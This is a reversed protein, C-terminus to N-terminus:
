AWSVSRGHPRLRGFVWSCVTHKKFLVRFEHTLIFLGPKEDHFWVRVDFVNYLYKISISSIWYYGNQQLDVFIRTVACANFLAFGLVVHTYTSEETPNKYSLPRKQQWLLSKYPKLNREKTLMLWLTLRPRVLSLRMNRSPKAFRNGVQRGSITM